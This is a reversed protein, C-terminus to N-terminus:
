LSEEGVEVIHVKGLKRLDLWERISDENLCYYHSDKVRDVGDGDIVYVKFYRYSSAHIEEGCVDCFRRLM